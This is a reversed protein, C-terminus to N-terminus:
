GFHIIEPMIVFVYEYNLVTFNEGWCIDASTTSLYNVKKQSCLKQRSYTFGLVYM